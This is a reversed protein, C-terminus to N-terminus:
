GDNGASWSVERQWDDATAGSSSPVLSVCDPCSSGVLPQGCRPCVLPQDLELAPNEAVQQALLSALDESSLALITNTAMLWTAAQHLPAVDPTQSLDIFMARSEHRPFQGRKLFPSRKQATGPSIRTIPQCLWTWHWRLIGCPTM